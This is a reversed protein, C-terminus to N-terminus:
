GIIWERLDLREYFWSCTAPHSAQSRYCALAALKLGIWEREPEVLKGWSSRGYRTYTLYRVIEVDSFVREALMGILNHDSHGDAEVAPALVIDWDAGLPDRLGWMFSELQEEEPDMDTIPWQTWTCSLANMAMETEFERTQAQVPVGGPYSPDAMRTSKLCIVVHPQYRLCLFSAFLTEDDNHPALLLARM